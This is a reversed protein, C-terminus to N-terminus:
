YWEPSDYSYDIVVSYPGERNTEENSLATVDGEFLQRQTQHAQWDEDLEYAKSMVYECVSNFYRDPLVYNITVTGDESLHPFAEPVYYVKIRGPGTPEGSEDVPGDIDPPPSLVMIDGFQTWVEPTGNNESDTYKTQYDDWAMFPLLVNDYRVAMLRQCDPPKFYDSEGLVAPTTFTARLVQNKSNIEIQAQKAWRKIDDDTIQVGSEDGFQRKVYSIVDSMNYTITTM